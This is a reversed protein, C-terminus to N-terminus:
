RRTTAPVHTEEKKTHRTGTYLPDPKFFSVNKEEKKKKEKKRREKKKEKERKKKDKKKFFSGNL